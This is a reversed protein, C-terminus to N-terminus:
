LSGTFYVKESARSVAVYLLRSLDNDNSISNLEDLNIFVNQYTSGQSKHITCAYRPRLDAWTKEFLHNEQRTLKSTNMTTFVNFDDPVFVDIGISLRIRHGKHGLQVESKVDTVVVEADTKIQRIPHPLYKNCVLVDGVRIIGTAEIEEKALKNANVVYPNTHGVLKTAKGKKISELWLDVFLDEDKILFIHKDDTTLTPMKTNDKVFERLQLSLQQIPNDKGQRMIEDLDVQELGQSFVPAESHNIPALQYPDGILIIKCTSDTGEDIHNLLDIDLYSAEDIILLSRTIVGKRSKVLKGDMVRLGLASHITRIPEDMGSEYTFGKSVLADVAKNTTATILVSDVLRKDGTLKQISLMKARFDKLVERIIESKGTGAPGAIVLYKAEPDACVGWITRIATEQGVTYKM